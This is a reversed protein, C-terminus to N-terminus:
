PHPLPACPMTLTPQYLLSRALKSKPYQSKQSSMM